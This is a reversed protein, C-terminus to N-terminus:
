KVPHRFSTKKDFGHNIAKDIDSNVIEVAKDNHMSRFYNDLASYFERAAIIAPIPTNKVIPNGYASEFHCPKLEIDGISKVETSGSKWNYRNKNEFHILTVPKQCLHAGVDFKHLVALEGRVTHEGTEKNTLKSDVNYFELVYQFFGVELLVYYSIRRQYWYNKGAPSSACYRFFDDESIIVSGRRDYTATKDVPGFEFQCYDYYDKNKDIIQM